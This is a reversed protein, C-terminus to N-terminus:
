LALALYMSNSPKSFDLMAPTAAGGTSAAVTGMAINPDPQQGFADGFRGMIAPLAIVLPALEIPPM